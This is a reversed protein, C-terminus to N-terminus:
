RQSWSKPYSMTKGCQPLRLEPSGQEALYPTKEQLATPAAAEVEPQSSAQCQQATKCHSTQEIEIPM